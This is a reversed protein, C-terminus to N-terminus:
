GGGALADPLEPVLRGEVLFSPTSIAGARLAEVTQSAVIEAIEESHRDEEFRELSLGLQECIRWLHPDETRGPDAFFADHFEWFAGQRGAAEAAAALPVARRHRSSIALHRFHVLAGSGKLRAAAVACEPCTFDAFFVVPVGDEPGRRYDEPGPPRSEAGSFDRM